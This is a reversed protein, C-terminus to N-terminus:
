GQLELLMLNKNDMKYVVKFDFQEYFSIKNNKCTLIIWKKDVENYIDKDIKLSKIEEIINNILFKGYGKSHYNPHINVCYLEYCNYTFYSSKYAAMGFCQNNEILIRYNQEKDNIAVLLDEKCSSDYIKDFNISIMDVCEEIININLKIIEM